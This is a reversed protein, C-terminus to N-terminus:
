MPLTPLSANNISSADTSATFLGVLVILPAAVYEVLRPSQMAEWAREPKCRVSHYNLSALYRKILKELGVM